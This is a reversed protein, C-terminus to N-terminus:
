ARLADLAALMGIVPAKDDGAARAYLRWEPDISKANRWDIDRGDRDRMIPKWPDSRWKSVDVPQGDYHAYFAITRAKGGQGEPLPTPASPMKNGEGEPLPAPPSAPASVVLDGVVIPPADGMTLVQSTLGRKELMARIIRANRQINPTDSAVDPIALLDC